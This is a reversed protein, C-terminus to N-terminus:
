GYGYDCPMFLILDRGADLPGPRVTHLLYVNSLVCTLLTRQCDPCGM